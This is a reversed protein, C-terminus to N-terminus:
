GRSAMRSSAWGWLVWLYGPAYDAFGANQYFGGPGNTALTEAWIRFLRLDSGLGEGPLWVYAVLM